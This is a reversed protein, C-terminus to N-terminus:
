PLNFDVVEWDEALLDSQSCTWVCISGDACKMDVHSRYDIATGEPYHKNLPARNVQFKSGDVLFVFMDKGNWGKRAVKCGASMAKVAEGIDMLM